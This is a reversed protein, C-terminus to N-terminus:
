YVPLCTFLSLNCSSFLNKERNKELMHLGIQSGSMHKMAILLKSIGSCVMKESLFEKLSM